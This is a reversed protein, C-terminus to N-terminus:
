SFGHWHLRSFGYGGFFGFLGFVFNNISSGCLRCGCCFPRFVWSYSFDWWGGFILRGFLGLCSGCCLIESSYVVNLPRKLFWCCHWVFLKDCPEFFFVFSLGDWRHDKGMLIVFGLLLILIEPVIFSIKFPLSRFIQSKYLLSWPNVM